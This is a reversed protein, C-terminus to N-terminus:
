IATAEANELVRIYGRELPTAGTSPADGLAALEDKTGHFLARGENMVVVDGGLADVDDVLHTSLVVTAQQGCRSVIERFAVRQQPDLGVTPEDLLVVAPEGVLAWAIGARRIMGGSLKRMKTKAHEALRVDDLVSAVHSSRQQRPVGRIWAAYHVFDQVTLSPDYGFAQPLYGIRHRAQQLAAPSDIVHGDVSFTGSTPPKITALTRLLTTKGAGNPGLLSVIGPGLRVSLGDIIVRGRYSQRLDCAEIM